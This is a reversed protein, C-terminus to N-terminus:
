LLAKRLEDNMRRINERQAISLSVALEMLWDAEWESKVAVIKTLVTNHFDPIIHTNPSSPPCPLQSQPKIKNTRTDIVFYGDSSSPDGSKQAFKEDYAGLVYAPHTANCTNFLIQFVGLIVLKNM